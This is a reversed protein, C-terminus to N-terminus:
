EWKWFGYNNGNGPAPNNNRNGAHTYIEDNPGPAGVVSSDVLEMNKYYSTLIQDFTWGALGLQSAGYQSMGVGHGNGGGYFVVDQDNFEFSFFASNLISGNKLATNTYDTSGGAARYVIIDNASGTDAKNPRITFRINYEKLIKYTGTSGEVVLEMINGGDGRKTVYMNRFEGIGEAPIAKSVYEGADNKTLIFKPDAAYRAALNKNITNQLETKSLTIKWRFYLSTDDYGRYSLNKYFALVEQENQTDIELMKSPDIPDFTYSKALLYDVPVGPFAGNGESWVQHKSAGFGGSTSYYRADVLSGDKGYMIQGATEQVAQTTLANEASNNYVQSMVSDLVFYGDKAFRDGLYDGLAYTRAAVSQAKLANLGFSAPMESPVVQYLYQEFDVDNILELKNGKVSTIEFLGRYQPVGQARTINDVKIKSSADTSIYLRNKTSYLESGDQKVASVSDVTSTFTIIEGAPADFTQGAIKDVIKLGAASSLKIENHDMTAFNTTMIGVRMNKVPTVGDILINTIEQNDNVKVTVNEAGVRVDRLSKKYLKNDVKQAVKYGEALKLKGKLELELTLNTTDKAMIKETFTTTKVEASVTSVSPLVSFFLGFVIFIISVVSVFKRTQTSLM